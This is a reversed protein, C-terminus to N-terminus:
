TSAPRHTSQTRRHIRNRDGLSLQLLLYAAATDQDSRVLTKRRKQGVPVDESSHSSMSTTDYDADAESRARKQLQARDVNATIMTSTSDVEVGLSSAVPFILPSQRHHRAQIPASSPTNVTSWKGSVPTLPSGFTRSNRDEDTGYGSELEVTRARPAIKRAGIVPARPAVTEREKLAIERLRKAQETCTQIIHPDITWRPIDGDDFRVCLDPFDIGFLPTLAHRIKYCFTAAVAKAADFPM